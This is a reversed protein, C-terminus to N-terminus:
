TVSILSNGEDPHLGAIHIKHKPEYRDCPAMNARMKRLEETDHFDRYPTLDLTEPVRSLEEDGIVKIYEQMFADYYHWDIGEARVAAQEARLAIQHAPLYHMGLLQILSKEVAEHVILFRDTLVRRRRYVFSKPMHRDIFIIHGDVSYGAVYPIDYDRELHARARISRVAHDMMEKGIVWEPPHHGRKKKVSPALTDLMEPHRQTGHM